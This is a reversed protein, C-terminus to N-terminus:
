NLSQFPRYVLSPMDLSPMLKTNAAAPHSRESLPLIVGHKCYKRCWRGVYTIDKGVFVKVTHGELKVIYDM